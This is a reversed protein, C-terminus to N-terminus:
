SLIHFNLKLTQGVGLNRIDKIACKKWLFAKFCLIEWVKSIQNTYSFILNTNFLKVAMLNILKYCTISLFVFKLAMVCFAM